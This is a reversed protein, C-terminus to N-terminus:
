PLVAHPFAAAARAAARSDDALQGKKAQQDVTLKDDPKPNPNYPAPPPRTEYLRDLSSRSPPIPIRLSGDIMILARVGNAELWAIQEVLGNPEAPKPVNRYALQGSDVIYSRIRRDEIEQPTLHHPKLARVAKRAARWAAVPGVYTRRM